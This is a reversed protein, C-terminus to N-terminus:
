FAYIRLEIDDPQDDRTTLVPDPELALDGDDFALATWWEDAGPRRTAARELVAQRQSEKETGM